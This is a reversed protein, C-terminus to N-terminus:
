AKGADSPGNERDAPAGPATQQTARSIRDKLGSIPATGAPEGEASWEIADDTISDIRVDVISSGSLETLRRLIYPEASESDPKSQLLHLIVKKLGDPRPHKANLRQANSRYVKQAGTGLYAALGREQGLAEIDQIM